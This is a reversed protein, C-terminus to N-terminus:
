DELQKIYHTELHRYGAAEYFKALKESQSNALAVMVIRKIGINKCMDELARLLIVGVKRHGKSVFWALENYVKSGDLPFTSAFGTIVGVVKGNEEAVLSSNVYEKFVELCYDPNIDFGYEALSDEKFEKMLHFAPIIDMPTAQRVQTIAHQAAEPM